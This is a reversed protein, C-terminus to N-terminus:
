GKLYAKVDALALPREKDKERVSGKDIMRLVDDKWAEKQAKVLDLVIKDKLFYRNFFALKEKDDKWDINKWVKDVGAPTTM